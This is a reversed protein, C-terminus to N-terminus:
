GKMGEVSKDMALKAIKQSDLDDSMLETFLM